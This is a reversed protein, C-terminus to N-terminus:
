SESFKKLYHRKIVEETPLYLPSYSIENPNQGIPVVWWYIGQVRPKWVNFTAEYYNVQAQPDYKKNPISWAYPTRYAGVIPIIGVETIIIREEPLSEKIEYIIKEWEKELMETSANDPLNLPFYADIGIYDLLKVFKNSQIEHVTDFNFSYLLAGKYVQRVNKILKIWHDQYKQMSNLETGINLIKANTSQALKAYTLILQEYDNFWRDIYKPKIEGRWMKSSLFVQEDMIPRIMVSFGLHHAEEIVAKLEEVTPTNTPSTTVENAQWDSQYFPFNIAVSNIGLNRLRELTKKVEVMNPHGYILINMGAQFEDSSYKFPLNEKNRDHNQVNEHLKEVVSVDKNPQKVDKEEKHFFEKTLLFFLLLAVIIVCFILESKLM